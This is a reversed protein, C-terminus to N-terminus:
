ASSRLVDRQVRAFVWALLPYAAVTTLYQFAAPSAEILQGALVANFLWVLAMAGAGVVAFGFWIVLFSQSRFFRRQNMVVAHVLLLVLMGVGLASGALLDHFLGVAFVAVAPMLDPRHVSWYYVAILALWPLVPALAPVGFPMMALMVFLLTLLLPTLQRAAEDLRQWLTPTM